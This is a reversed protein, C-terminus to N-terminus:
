AGAELRDRFFQRVRKFEETRKGEGGGSYAELPERVFVRRTSWQHRSITALVPSVDALLTAEGDATAVKAAKTWRAQTKATEKVAATVSTDPDLGSLPRHKAVYYFYGPDVDCKAAIDLKEEHRGRPLLSDWVHGTEGPRKMPELKDSYAAAKLLKREAVRRACEVLLDNGAHDRQACALKAMVSDDILELLLTSDGDVISEELETAHPLAGARILELISAGLCLEAAGVTKHSVLQAYHYYRSLLYHEGPVLGHKRDVALMTGIQEDTAVVLNGILYSLDIYGYTLGATQSDRILYDLRDCDLDSSLLNRVVVDGPEAETPLAKITRAVLDAATLSEGDHGLDSPIHRNIIERFREGRVISASIHEHYAGPSGAAIVDFATLSEHEAYEDWGPNRSVNWAVEGVHSFPLHGIDHLLAALRLIQFMQPQEEFHREFAPQRLIMGMVHTSGISHAFRSHTAGPFVSDVPELQSIRRLRQFEPTNVLELEVKTLWVRGHVPDHM